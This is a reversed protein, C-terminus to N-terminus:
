PGLHNSNTSGKEKIKGRRSEKAGGVAPKRTRLPRQAKKKKALYLRYSYLHHRKSTRFYGAPEAREKDGTGKLGKEYATNKKKGGLPNPRNWLHYNTRHPKRARM